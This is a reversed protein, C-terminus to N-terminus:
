AVKRITLRVKGVDFFLWSLDATNLVERPSTLALLDNFRINWSSGTSTTVKAVYTLRVDNGEQRIDAQGIVDDRTGSYRGESLRTFRWTKRDKEGDSYVFDEVLTLTQSPADWTGRMQVKLGRTTNDRTNTFVGEAVHRGKFFEELVLKRSTAALVPGSGLGAVFLSAAGLAAERRNFTM